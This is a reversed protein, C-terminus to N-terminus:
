GNLIEMYNHYLSSEKVIERDMNDFIVKSHELGWHPIVTVETCGKRYTSDVARRRVLEWGRSVAYNHTNQSDFYPPPGSLRTILVYMGICVPVAILIDTITPLM